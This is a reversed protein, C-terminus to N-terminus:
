ACVEAASAFAEVASQYATLLRTATAVDDPGTDDTGMHAIRIM